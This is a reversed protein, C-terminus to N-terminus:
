VVVRVDDASLAAPQLAGRDACHSTGCQGVFARPSYCRKIVQRQTYFVFSASCLEDLQAGNSSPESSLPHRMGRLDHKRSEERSVDKGQMNISTKPLFTSYSICISVLSLFMSVSLLLLSTPHGWLPLLSVRKVSLLNM